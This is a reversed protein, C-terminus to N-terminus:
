NSYVLQKAQVRKAYGVLKRLRQAHGWAIQLYKEGLKHQQDDFLISVYSCVIAKETLYYELLPEVFELNEQMDSLYSHLFRKALETEQPYLRELDVVLMAVDSLTDIFCFEPKFDICDLALLKPQFHSLPSSRVWLNTVKLDGHCRKIHGNICRSEFLASYIDCADKLCAGIWVYNKYGSSFLESMADLFLENNLSLKAAIRDPRGYIHSDPPQELHRHMRAVEHALFNIDVKRKLQDDLKQSKNLTRMVLAYRKSNMLQEKLPHEILPGRQIHKNDNSVIVTAIGLYVGPAFKRNFELGEILYEDSRVILREDCVENETRRWFKLCIQLGSRKSRTFIVRTTTQVIEYKFPYYPNDSIYRQLFRLVYFLPFYALVFNIISKMTGALWNDEDTYRFEYALILAIANRISVIANRISVPLSHYIAQIVNRSWHWVPKRKQGLLYFSSDM